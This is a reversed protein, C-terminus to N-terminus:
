LETDLQQDGLHCLSKHDTVIVFPNRQLYAQWKDVAMIVALFEKEYISLRQNRVGLAKRLYAIPHGDQVLVAGVGTDCADTEISFPRTFDPLALVPTSAMAEKLLDFATQAQVSWAFGKKTLLQTLPKAIIGYRPVFKRYYCNISVSSPSSRAYILKMSRCPLLNPGAFVSNIVCQFTPPGTTVGFPMVRFEFHGHHTKFATKEEDGACMRIQHCGERLDIKSFFAAGLLEDLLEDIVPLPFKNKITVTNLRRYDVCFRWTGDKKKVLLIPAAFPSMSHTIIGTRLMEEVQREIEDKQLPSYRYPRCSVPAAGPELNIAHDYQRHPPLQTPEEFIDSFETLIRQITPPIPQNSDSSPPTLQIELLAAGWIADHMQWLTAADLATLAPQGDSRVGKLHVIKGKREFQMTKLQWDCQMPSHRALWDVGLVADYVGLDLVRMDTTFQHEQICWQLQPVMATCHLRQGNAVRVSIPSITSTAAGIGAAFSSNVFSHTSGSDVLVLITQTGVTAQLRITEATETGEVAHASLLCCVPDATADPEDLLQLARVAENSLVEGHDGVKITLLQTSRKCQHDRSYKDGCRFCLGHQRRYDCLQRERGFDDAAPKLTPVVRQSPAATNPLVPAPPPRGLALLLSAVLPPRGASVPRLRPHQIDLEEEQIRAFVTARTISNPAQLRVAARLEDKM